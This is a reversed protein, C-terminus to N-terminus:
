FDQLNWLFVTTSSDWELLTTPGSLSGLMPTKRSINPFEWSRSKKLSCKWEWSLFTLIKLYTGLRLMKPSNKLILPSDYSNTKEGYVTCFIVNEMLSKKLLHPDCKSFFDKISIKMKQANLSRWVEFLRRQM